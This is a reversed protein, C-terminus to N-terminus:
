KNSILFIKNQWETQKSELAQFYDAVETYLDPFKVKTFEVPAYHNPKYDVCCNYRTIGDDEDVSQTHTHGHIIVTCCDTKEGIFGCTAKVFKCYEEDMLRGHYDPKGTVPFHCLFYNGFILYRNVSLFGCKRYFSDKYWDHNGKILVKRGPLKTFIETMKQGKHNKKFTLDGLFIVMDNENVTNRYQELLFDDCEEIGKDTFDFPRNCYQIIAKHGLHLDSTIFLRPETVKDATVRMHHDGKPNVFKM